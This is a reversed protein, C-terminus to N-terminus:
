PLFSHGDFNFGPVAVFLTGPRANRSDHEVARVTADGAGALLEAGPLELLLSGIPRSTTM